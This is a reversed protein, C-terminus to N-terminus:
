AAAAPKLLSPRATRMAHYEMVLAFVGTFVLDSFFSNRFFFL